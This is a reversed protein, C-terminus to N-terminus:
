GGRLDGWEEILAEAQRRLRREVQSARMDLIVRAMVPTAGHLIWGIAAGSYMVLWNRPDSLVHLAGTLSFDFRFFALVPWVMGALNAAAVDRTLHRRPHRDVMAAVATPLMGAGLIVCLPLLAVGVVTSLVIAPTSSRKGPGQRRAATATKRAM